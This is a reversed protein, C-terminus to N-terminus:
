HRSFLRKAASIDKVIQAILPAPSSFKKENRIKRFFQIEIFEGYINRNFDFIHVEVGRLKRRGYHCAADEFTPSSGIYTIGKLLQKGVRVAVAYIGAPPLVEHQPSVNATPFGLKTALSTGRTVKGFVSVPRLLLKKAADLRGESILSRIYTSSIPRHNSQMVDFIKVQCGYTAAIRRLLLADGEADRGFTFNKGVYIYRAGIRKLLTEKIFHAARVRSFRRNFRIVVCVDMGLEEFLRIRHELSYISEKGQPHPYFTVAVSTGGIARAKLIASRLIRRHARHLGDFVGIAVVAKHMPKMGNTSGLVEIKNM